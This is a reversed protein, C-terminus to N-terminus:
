CSYHVHVTRRGSSTNLNVSTQYGIVQGIQCINLDEPGLWTVEIKEVNHFTGVLSALGRKEEVSVIADQRLGFGGRQNDVIAVLTGDGNTLTQLQHRQGCGALATSGSLALAASLRLWRARDGIAAM